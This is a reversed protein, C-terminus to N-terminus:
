CQLCLVSSLLIVIGGGGGSARRIFLSFRKALPAYVGFFDNVLM